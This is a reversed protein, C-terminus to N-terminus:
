FSYRLYKLFISRLYIKIAMVDGPILGESKRGVKFHLPEQRHSSKFNNRGTVPIRDWAPRPEDRDKAPSLAISGHFMM